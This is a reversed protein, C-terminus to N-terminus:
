RRSGQRSYTATISLATTGDAAGFYGHEIAGPTMCTPPGPDTQFSLSNLRPDLTVRRRRGATPFAASQAVTERHPLTHSQRRRRKHDTQLTIVYTAGDAEPTPRPASGPAVRSFGTTTSKYETETLSLFHYQRRNKQSSFGPKRRQRGPLCHRHGHGFVGLPSNTRLAFFQSLPGRLLLVGVRWM